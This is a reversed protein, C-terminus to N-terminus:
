LVDLLSHTFPLFTVTIERCNSLCTCLGRALTKGATWQKRRGLKGLLFFGVEPLTGTLFLVRFFSVPVFYLLVVVCSFCFWFFVLPFVSATVGLQRQRAESAEPGREIQGNTPRKGLVHVRRWRDNEKGWSSFRGWRMNDRSGLGQRQKCLSASPTRALIVIQYQTLTHVGGFSAPLLWCIPSTYTIYLFGDEDKHEEYISSM